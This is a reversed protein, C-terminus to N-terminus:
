SIHYTEVLNNRIRIVPKVSSKKLTQNQSIGCGSLAM